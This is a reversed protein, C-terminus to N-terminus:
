LGWDGEADELPNELWELDAGSDKRKSLQGPEESTSGQLESGYGQSEEVQWVFSHYTVKSFFAQM